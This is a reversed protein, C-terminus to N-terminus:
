SAFTGEFSLISTQLSKFCNKPHYDSTKIYLIYQSYIIFMYLPRKM